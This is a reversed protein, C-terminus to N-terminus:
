SSPSDSPQSPTNRANYSVLGRQQPLQVRDRSGHDARSSAGRFAILVIVPAGQDVRVHLFEPPDRVAAPPAKVASAFSRVSFATVALVVDVGNDVVM